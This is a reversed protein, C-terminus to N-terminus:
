LVGRTGSVLEAASCLTEPENALLYDRVLAVHFNALQYPVIGSDVVQVITSKYIPYKAYVKSLPVLCEDCFTIVFGQQSSGSM